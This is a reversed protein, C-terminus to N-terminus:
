RQVLARHGQRTRSREALRQLHERMSPTLPRTQSQLARTAFREAATYDGLDFNVLAMARLTRATPMRSHAKEFLKKAREFDGSRSAVLGERTLREYDKLARRRRQRAKDPQLQSPEHLWVTSASTSLQAEGDHYSVESVANTYRDQQLAQLPLQQLQITLQQREGPKLDPCAQDAAALGALHIKVRCRNLTREGINRLSLSASAPGTVALREVILAGGYRQAPALPVSATRDDASAFMDRLARDLSRAAAGAAQAPDAAVGAGSALAKGSGDTAQLRARWQDAKRQLAAEVLLTTASLSHDRAFAQLRAPPLMLPRAHLPRLYPLDRLAAQVLEPGVEQVLSRGQSAAPLSLGIVVDHAHSKSPDVLAHLSRGSERTVRLGADSADIVKAVGSLDTEGSAHLVFKVVGDRLYVARVKDIGDLARLRKLVLERHDLHRVGSIVLEVDFGHRGRWDVVWQRARDQLMPELKSNVLSRVAMGPNLAHAPWTRSEDVMVSGTDVRIVRVHVTCQYGKFRSGLLQKGTELCTLGASVVADAHVTSLERPLKGSEVLDSLLAQHASLVAQTDVVTWGHNRLAAHLAAQLSAADQRTGDVRVESVAAARLGQARAATTGVATLAFVLCIALGHFLATRRM